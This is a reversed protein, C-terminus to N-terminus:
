GSRCTASCRGTSATACTALLHPVHRGQRGAALHQRRLDHAARARRRHPPAAARTTPDAITDGIEVEPFGAVVFLDGAPLYLMTPLCITATLGSERLKRLSEVDEGDPLKAEALGIGEAGGAAYAVLDEDFGLNLTSFESVAFRPM